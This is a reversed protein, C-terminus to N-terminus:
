LEIEENGIWLRNKIKVGIALIYVERLEQDTRYYVRFRNNPGFRLEWASGLISPKLLPKRNRTEVQPEFTLMREITNRILSHYKTGIAAVHDWVQEDYILRFRIARKM